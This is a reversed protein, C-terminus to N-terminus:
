AERVHQRMCNSSYDDVFDWLNGTSGILLVKEGDEERVCVRGNTLIYKQFLKSFKREDFHNIFDCWKEYTEMNSARNGDENIGNDLITYIEASLYNCFEVFSLRYVKFYYDFDDDIDSPLNDLEKASPARVPGDYSDIVDQFVKSASKFARTMGSQYSKHNVLFSAENIREAQKM